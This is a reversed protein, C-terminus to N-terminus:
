LLKRSRLAARVRRRQWPKADALERLAQSLDQERRKITRLSDNAVDLQSHLEAVTERLLELESRSEDRLEVDWDWAQKTQAM